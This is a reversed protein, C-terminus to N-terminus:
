ADLVAALATATAPTMGGVIVLRDNTLPPRVLQSAIIVEGDVEIALVLPEDSVGASNFFHDRIQNQLAQGIELDLAVQRNLIVARAGLVARDGTLETVASRVFCSREGVLMAAPVSGEGCPVGTVEDVQWVRVQEKTSGTTDVVWPEQVTPNLNSVQDLSVASPPIVPLSEEPGFAIQYLEGDGLFRLQDFDAFIRESTADPDSSSWRDVFVRGGAVGCGDGDRYTDGNPLTLVGESISFGMADAFVDLTAHEYGAEAVFPHIHMLGDAHSHIGLPDADSDFPPLVDDCIRVVYAAHWHSLGPVPGLIPLGEPSLVVSDDVAEGDTPEVVMSSAIASEIDAVEVRCGTVVFLSLVLGIAAFLQHRSRRHM